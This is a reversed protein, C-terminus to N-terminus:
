KEKEKFNAKLFRSRGTLDNLIVFNEFGLNELLPLLSILEDEHGEMFFTGELHKAVQSFFLKFWDSYAEDDLYLAIHPEFSDVNKHVLKKQTSKKIYPPNSVILDFKGEVKELRDSLKFEIKHHLRLRDANIQAVKLAAHSLDVGVGSEGVGSGLLSLIIVGSGTGVDLVRKINGKCENVIMDVLLETEPRPILVDDNIFFRQGYFESFGLLYAM